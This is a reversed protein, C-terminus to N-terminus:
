QFVPFSPNFHVCFSSWQTGLPEAAEKEPISERHGPLPRHGRGVYECSETGAIDLAKYSATIYTEGRRGSRGPEDWGNPVRLMLYLPSEHNVFTYVHSLELGLVLHVPCVYFSNIMGLFPTNLYRTSHDKGSGQTDQSAPVMTLCDSAEWQRRWGGSSLLRHVISNWTRLVLSSEKEKSLVPILLCLLFKFTCSYTFATLRFLSSVIHNWSHLM